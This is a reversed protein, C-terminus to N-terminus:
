QAKVANATWWCSWLQLSCSVQASRQRTPTATGHLYVGTVRMKSMELLSRDPLNLKFSQQGKSLCHWDAPVPMTSSTGLIGHM